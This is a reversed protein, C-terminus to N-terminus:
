LLTSEPMSLIVHTNLLLSLVIWQRDRTGIHSFRVYTVWSIQIYRNNKEDCRIDAIDASIAKYYNFNLLQIINKSVWKGPM